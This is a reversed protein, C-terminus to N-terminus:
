ARLFVARTERSRIYLVPVYWGAGDSAETFLVHRGQAVASQLSSGRQLLQRYFIECFRLATETRVSLQMAVVAGAVTSLAPAVGTLLSGEDHVLASQCAHVVILRANRLAPALRAANVTDRGGAGDDFCLYGTGDRFGGHGFFHVVDPPAPAHELYDNLDAVRAPSLESYTIAGADRLADWSRLRAARERARLEPPVGHEPAIALLRLKQGAPLPPPLAMDLDVYRECSDVSSGRILVAQNKDRDRLLEWPLSALGLADPPFRLVYNATVGRAIATNRISKLVAQGAKGLAQYLADGVVEHANAALREGDWLGLRRLTSQEGADFAYLRREAANAAHPYDPYQLVDLARIVLRLEGRSYPPDFQTQERGIEAGRWVIQASHEDGQFELQVQLVEPSTVARPPQDTPTTSHQRPTPPAPRAALVQKWREGMRERCRQIAKQIKEPSIREKQLYYDLQHEDRLDLVKDPEVRDGSAVVCAVYPHHAHIHDILQTGQVFTTRGRKFNMDIIAIAYPAGESEAQRLKHQADEITNAVDVSHKLAAVLIRMNTCYDQDDDVLLLRLADPTM